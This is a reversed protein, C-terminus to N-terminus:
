TVDIAKEGSPVLNTEPLESLDMRIQSISEPWSSLLNTPCLLSTLKKKKKKKEKKEKKFIKM